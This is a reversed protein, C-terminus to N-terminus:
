AASDDPQRRLHPPVEEPGAMQLDLLDRCQQVLGPDFNETMKRFCNEWGLDGMLERLPGWKKRIKADAEDEIEAADQQRAHIELEMRLQAARHDDRRLVALERSLSIIEERVGEEQFPRAVAQAMMKGLALALMGSLRDSLPVLGAEEALDDAEETLQRVWALSEEHKVWDQYGGQRWESLNRESIPVGNFYDDLVDQVAQSSNLWATLKKGSESDHLRQNLNDRLYRPLRAIKGTRTM